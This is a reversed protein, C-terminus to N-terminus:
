GEVLIASSLPRGGPFVFEMSSGMRPRAILWHNKGKPMRIYQQVDGSLGLMIAESAGLELLADTLDSVLIENHKSPNGALSIFVINGNAVRGVATMAAQFTDSEWLVDNQKVNPTKEGAFKLSAVQSRGRSIIVPGRIGNRFDLPSNLEGNAFNLHKIGAKDADFVFFSYSGNLPIRSRTHVGPATRTILKGESIMISNAAWMNDTEGNCAFIIRGPTGSLIEKLTRGQRPTFTVGKELSKGTVSPDNVSFRSFDYSLMREDCYLRIRSRSTDVTVAYGSAERKGQVAVRIIGTPANAAILSKLSLPRFNIRIGGYIGRM